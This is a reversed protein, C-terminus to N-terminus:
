HFPSTVTPSGLQPVLVKLYTWSFMLFFLNFIAIYVGGKAIEGQRLLGVCMRGVYVYCTWVVIALVVGVVLKQVIWPQPKNRELREKQRAVYTDRAVGVCDWDGRPREAM